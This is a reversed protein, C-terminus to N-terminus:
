AASVTSGTQVDRNLVQANVRNKVILTGFRYRLKIVLQDEVPPDLSEGHLGVKVLVSVTKATNTCYHFGLNHRPAVEFTGNGFSNRDDFQKLVYAAFINTGDLNTSIYPFLSRLTGDVMNDGLALTMWDGYLGTGSTDLSFSIHDRNESVNDRATDRAVMTQAPQELDFSFYLARETYFIRVDTRYPTAALTDPSIVRLEQNAPSVQWAVEDLVGDVRLGAQQHNIRQLCIVRPPAGDQLNSDACQDNRDQPYAPSQCIALCAFLGAQISRVRRAVSQSAQRSMSKAWILSLVSYPSRSDGAPRWNRHFVSEVGNVKSGM